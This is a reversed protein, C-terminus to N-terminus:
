NLLRCRHGELNMSIRFNYKFFHESSDAKPIKFTFSSFSDLLKTDLILKLLSPSRKKGTLM